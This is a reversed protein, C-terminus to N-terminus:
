FLPNYKNLIKDIERNLIEYKLNNKKGVCRLLNMQELEKLVLYRIHNPIKYLRRKLIEKVSAYTIYSRGCSHELIIKYLFLYLIPPKKLNSVVM